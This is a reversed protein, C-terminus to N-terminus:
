QPRLSLCPARSDCKSQLRVDRRGPMSLNNAHCDGGAITSALMCQQTQDQDACEEHQMLMCPLKAQRLKSLHDGYKRESAAWVYRASLQSDTKQLLVFLWFMVLLHESRSIHCGLWSTTQLLPM